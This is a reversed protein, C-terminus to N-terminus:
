SSPTGHDHPQSPTRRRKWGAVGALVLLAAAAGGVGILIPRQERIYGSARLLQLDERYDHGRVVMLVHRGEVKVGIEPVDGGGGAAGMTVFGVKTEEAM